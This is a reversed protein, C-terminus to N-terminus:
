EEQREELFVESLEEKPPQSEWLNTGELAQCKRAYAKAAESAWGQSHDGDKLM